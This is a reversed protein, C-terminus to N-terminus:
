RRSGTAMSLVAGITPYDPWSPEYEGPATLTPKRYTCTFIGEALWAAFSDRDLPEARTDRLRTLVGGYCFLDRGGWRELM